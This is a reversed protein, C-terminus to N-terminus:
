PFKQTVAQVVSQAGPSLVLKARPACTFAIASHDSPTSGPQEERLGWKLASQGQPLTDKQLDRRPSAKRPSGPIKQYRHANKKGKKVAGKQQAPGETTM